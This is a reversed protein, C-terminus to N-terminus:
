LVFRGSFGLRMEDGRRAPSSDRRRRAGNRTRRVAIDRAVRYRSAARMGCPMTRWRWPANYGTHAPAPCAMGGQLSAAGSRSALWARTVTVPLVSRCPPMRLPCPPLLRVPVRTSPTSRAGGAVRSCCRCSTNTPLCLGARSGSLSPKSDDALLQQTCLLRGSTLPACWVDAGAPPDEYCALAAVHATFNRDLGQATRRRTHTCATM